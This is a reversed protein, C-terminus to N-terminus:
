IFTRAKQKFYPSARSLPCDLYFSYDTYKLCKNDSLSSLVTVLQFLEHEVVHKSTFPLASAAL